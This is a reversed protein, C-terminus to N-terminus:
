FGFAGRFAHALLVEDFRDGCKRFTPFRFETARGSLAGVLLIRHCRRFEVLEDPHQARALDCAIWGDLFDTGAPLLERGGEYWRGVQREFRHDSATYRRLPNSRGVRVRASDHEVEM